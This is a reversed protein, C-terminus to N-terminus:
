SSPERWEGGIYHNFVAGHRTLWERAPVDSERAPGFDLAASTFLDAISAVSVGDPSPEGGLVTRHRSARTAARHRHAARECWLSLAIALALSRRAGGEDNDAVRAGVE